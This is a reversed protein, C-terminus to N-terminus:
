NNRRKWPLRTKDAKDEILGDLNFKRILEQKRAPDIDLGAVEGPKLSTTQGVDRHVDLKQTTRFFDLFEARDAEPMKASLKIIAERQVPALHKESILKEVDASVVALEKQGELETIRDELTKVTKKFAELEDTGEEKAPEPYKKKWEDTCEEMSKGGAMCEKMFAARDPKETDEEKEAAKKKKEDEEEEEEEDEPKKPAILEKFAKLLDANSLDQEVGLKGLVETYKDAELNEKLYALLETLKQSSADGEEEQELSEFNVIKADDEGNNSM